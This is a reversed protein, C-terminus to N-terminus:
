MHTLESQGKRGLKTNPSHLPFTRVDFKLMMKAEAKKDVYVLAEGEVAAPVVFDKALVKSPSSGEKPNEMAIATDTM